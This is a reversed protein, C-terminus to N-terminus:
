ATATTTGMDMVFNNQNFDNPHVGVILLSTGHFTLLTGNTTDILQSTLYDMTHETGHHEGLEPIQTNPDSFKIVDQKVDFNYILDKNTAEENAFTFTDAKETAVIKNNRENALFNEEFIPKLQGTLSIGDVISKKDTEINKLNFVSRSSDDDLINAKIEKFNPKSKSLSIVDTDTTSLSLYFSEDGEPKDDANIKISVKKSTEGKKFILTGSKKVYDKDQATATDDSTTYQIKIDRDIAKSLNLNFTVTTATKSTGETIYTPFSSLTPLTITTSTTTLIPDAM